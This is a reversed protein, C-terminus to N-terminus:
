DGKRNRYLAPDVVAAMAAVDLGGGLFRDLRAVHPAADALLDNYQMVCCAFGARAALDREVRDLHTRFMAAKREDSLTGTPRGLRELMRRQSAVVEDLNRRMLVVRYAPGDPLDGLLAYVMKVVRGQAQALWAADERTRKVAEFEYYGRPNDRDAERVGDVLPEIGGAELMRMMM